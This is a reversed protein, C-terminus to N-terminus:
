IKLKKEKKHNNNNQTLKDELYIKFNLKNCFIYFEENKDYISLISHIPSENLWDNFNERKDYELNLNHQITKEKQTLYINKYDKLSNFIINQYYYESIKINLHEESNLLFRSNNFLKELNYLEFYVPNNKYGIKKNELWNIKDNDIHPLFYHSWTYKPLLCNWIKNNSKYDAYTSYIEYEYISFLKDLVNINNSMNIIISLFREKLEPSELVKLKFVSNLLLPSNSHSCIKGIWNVLKKDNIKFSNSIAIIKEIDKFTHKKEHSISLDIVKEIFKQFKLEPTNVLFHSKTEQTFYENSVKLFQLYSQKKSLTNMKTFVQSLFNFDSKKSLLQINKKVSLLEIAFSLNINDLTKYIDKIQLNQLQKEFIVRKITFSDSM